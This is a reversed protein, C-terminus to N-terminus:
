LGLKGPNLVGDPDLANKLRRLLLHSAGLSRRTYPSRALGGGHHHSLEAGHDLAVRMATAWVGELAAVAATDDAATLVMTGAVSHEGNQYAAVPFNLDGISATLGGGTITQTVTDVGLAPSAVTTLLLALAAAGLALGPRSSPITM